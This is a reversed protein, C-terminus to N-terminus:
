KRYDQTQNGDLLIQWTTQQQYENSYTIFADFTSKNKFKFSENMWIKKKIRDGFRATKRVCLKLSLLKKIESLNLYLIFPILFVFVCFPM